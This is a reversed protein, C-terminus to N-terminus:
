MSCLGRVGCSEKSTFSGGGGRWWWGVRFGTPVLGCSMLLGSLTLWNVPCHTLFSEASVFPLLSVAREIILTVYGKTILSTPFLLRFGGTIKMVARRTPRSSDSGLPRGLAETSPVTNTHPAVCHASRMLSSHQPNKKKSHLIFTM